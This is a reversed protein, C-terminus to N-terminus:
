VAAGACLAVAATAAAAEQERAAASAMDLALAGPECGSNSRCRFCAQPSWSCPVSPRLSPPWRGRNRINRQPKRHAGHPRHATIPLCQCGARMEDGDLDSCQQQLTCRRPLVPHSAWPLPCSSARSLAAHRAATAARGVPLLSTRHVASNQWCMHVPLPGATHWSRRWQRGVLCAFRFRGARDNARSSRM